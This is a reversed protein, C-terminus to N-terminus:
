LIVAREPKGDGIREPVEVVEDAENRFVDHEGPRRSMHVGKPLDRVHLLLKEHNLRLHYKGNDYYAQIRGKTMQRPEKEGLRLEWQEFTGTAIASRLDERAARSAAVMQDLAHRAE